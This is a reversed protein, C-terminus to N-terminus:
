HTLARESQCHGHVFFGIEDESQASRAARACVTPGNALLKDSVDDIAQLYQCVHCSTTVCTVVLTMSLILVRWPVEFTQRPRSRLWNM